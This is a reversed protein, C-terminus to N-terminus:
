ARVWGYGFRPVAKDVGPLAELRLQQNLIVLSIWRELAHALTGDTQGPEPEFDDLSLNLELLPRLAQLRGCVMSGSVYSQQVAWRGSWHQKQLLRELHDVNARLAVSMPLLTGAPVLLGLSPDQRLREPLERLLGPDLLADVLHQGWDDGKQLHPLVKTHQKVFATHGQQWPAPLLELLFPAIDRGRNAVGVLHVRPWGQQRLLREVQDFQELPTSVYLDLGPWGQGDDGAPLRALCSELKDLYYGHLM